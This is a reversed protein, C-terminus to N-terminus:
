QSYLTVSHGSGTLEIGNTPTRRAATVSDLARALRAQEPHVAIRCVPAARTAAMAEGAGRPKQPRDTALVGGAYSYTWVFGACRPEFSIQRDTITLGIGIGGGVESGDIGAVRYEGVLAKPAAPSPDQAGPSAPEANGPVMEKGPTQCASLALGALLAIPKM